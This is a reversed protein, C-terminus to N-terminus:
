WARRVAHRTMRSRPPRFHAVVHSVAFALFSLGIGVAWVVICPRFDSLGLTEEETNSPRGYKQERRVRSKFEALREAKTFLGAEFTRSLVKKISRYYPSNLRLRPGRIAPSLFTDTQVFGFRFLEEKISAAEDSSPKFVFWAKKGAKALLKGSGDVCDYNKEVAQEYDTHPWARHVLEEPFNVFCVAPGMSKAMDLSTYETLEGVLPVNCLLSTIVGKYGTALVTVTLYWVGLLFRLSHVNEAGPPVPYAQQVLSAALPSAVAHFDPNVGSVRCLFFSILSCVIFCVLLAAWVLISFPLFFVAEKPLPQLARVFTAFGNRDFYSPTSVTPFYLDPTSVFPAYILTGPDILNQNFYYLLSDM